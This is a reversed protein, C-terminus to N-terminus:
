ETFSVSLSVSLTPDSSVQWLARDNSKPHKYQSGVINAFTLFISERGFKV